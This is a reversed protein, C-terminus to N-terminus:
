RTAERGGPRWGLVLALTGIALCGIIAGRAGQFMPLMGTELQTFPYFLLLGGVRWLGRRRVLLECFGLTLGWLLAALAVGAVGGAMWAETHPTCPLDFDFGLEFFPVECSVEELEDKTPLLAYPVARAITAVVLGGMDLDVKARVATDQTLADFWLYTLRDGIGERTTDDDGSLAREMRQTLTLTQEGEVSARWGSSGVLMLLTLGALALGVTLQSLPSRAGIDSRERLRALWMIGYCIAAAIMLRRSQLVFVLLVLAAIGAVRALRGLRAGARAPAPDRQRLAVLGALLFLVSPYLQELGGRGGADEDGGWHTLRGAEAAVVFVIVGFALTAREVPRVDVAPRPRPAVRLTLARAVLVTVAAFGLFLALSLLVGGPSAALGVRTVGEVAADGLGVGYALGYSAFLLTTLHLGREFSWTLGGAFVASAVLAVVLGGVDLTGYPFTLVLFALFAAITLRPPVVASV